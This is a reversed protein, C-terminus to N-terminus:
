GQTNSCGPTSTLSPDMTQIDFTFGLTLVQFFCLGLCEREEGFMNLHTGRGGSQEKMETQQPSPALQFLLPPPCGM